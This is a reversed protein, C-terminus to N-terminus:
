SFRFFKRKVRLQLRSNFYFRTNNRRSNQSTFKNIGTYYQNLSGVVKVIFNM